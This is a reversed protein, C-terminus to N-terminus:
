ILEREEEVLDRLLERSVLLNMSLVENIVIMNSSDKKSYNDKMM